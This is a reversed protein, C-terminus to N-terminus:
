GVITSGILRRHGRRLRDSLSQRTIDLEGAIEELTAERPTDFYGRDFALVLAERQAATLDYEPGRELPSLGHLAALSVPVDHELCYQQFASVAETDEGRVEFTWRDATGIGSVLSVATEVIAKMVGQYEPEWEVCLLYDGDVEDVQRIARVDPHHGFASEIRGEQTPNVGKVWFYPIVASNTPVLRELEVTVDPFASFFRGLPFSDAPLSFEALTAM